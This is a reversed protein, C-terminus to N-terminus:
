FYNSNIERRARPAGYLLFSGEKTQWKNGAERLFVRYAIGDYRGQLLNWSNAYHHHKKSENSSEELIDSKKGKRIDLRLKHM